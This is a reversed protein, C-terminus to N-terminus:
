WGRRTAGSCRNCVVPADEDLRTAKPLARTPQCLLRVIQGAADVEVLHTVYRTTRAVAVRAATAPRSSM